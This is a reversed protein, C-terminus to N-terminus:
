TKWRKGATRARRVINEVEKWTPPSTEIHYEPPEIPPIDSPIALHEHRKSDFNTTRLYEELDKKTTKLAGSKEETFRSNLYSGQMNQKDRHSHAACVLPKM